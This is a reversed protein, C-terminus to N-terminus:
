GRVGVQVEGMGGELGGELDIWVLLWRGGGLRLLLLLLSGLSWHGLGRGSLSSFDVLITVLGRM